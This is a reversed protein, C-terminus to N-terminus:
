MYFINEKRDSFIKENHADGGDLNASFFIPPTEGDALLLEVVDVVIANAIACGLVSSTPAVKQQLGEFSISADGIEGCNDIVIDAIDALVNGSPHRSVVSETYKRNTIAILFAGSEKATLAFDIMVSNRGSVSHCIITDGDKIKTKLAIETGYGPLREMRSTFTVPKVNLMISPELIPNIVALGGARYFLEETVIGAHSAGFSFVSRRNKITNAIKEAAKELQPEERDLVENILNMINNLYRRHATM